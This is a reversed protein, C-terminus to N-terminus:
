PPGLVHALSSAGGWAELGSGLRRLARGAGRAVPGLVPPRRKPRPPGGALALREHRLMARELELTRIRELIDPSGLM